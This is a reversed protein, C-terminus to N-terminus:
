HEEYDRLFQRMLTNTQLMGILVDSDRLYTTVLPILFSYRFLGIVCDDTQQHLAVRASLQQLMADRRAVRAQHSQKTM